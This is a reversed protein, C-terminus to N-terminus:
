ARGAANKRASKHALRALMSWAKVSESSAMFEIFANTREGTTGNRLGEVMSRTIGRGRDRVTIGSRTKDEAWRSLQQLVTPDNLCTVFMELMLASKHFSAFFEEFAKKSGVAPWETTDLYVDVELNKPDPMQFPGWPRSKIVTPNTPHTLSRNAADNGAGTAAIGPNTVTSDAEIVVNTQGGGKDNGADDLLNWSMTVSTAPGIDPHTVTGEYWIYHGAAVARKMHKEVAQEMRTNATGPFAFLNQAVGPGGLQDNVIHAAVHPTGGRWEAATLNNQIASPSSPMSGYPHDPGIVGRASTGEAHMQGAPGDGPTAVPGFDVKTHWTTGNVTTGFGRMEGNGGGADAIAANVQDADRRAGFFAGPNVAARRVMEPGGPSVAPRQRLLEVVAQNGISRQLGLLAGSQDLVSPEAAM